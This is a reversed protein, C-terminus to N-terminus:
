GWLPLATEFFCLCPAWNGGGDQGVRSPVAQQYLNYGGMYSPNPFHFAGGQGVCHTIVVVQLAKWVWSGSKLLDRAIGLLVWM